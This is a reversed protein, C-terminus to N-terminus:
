QETQSVHLCGRRMYASKSVASILLCRKAVPSCTAMSGRRKLRPQAHSRGHGLTFTKVHIPLHSLRLPSLNAASSRASIQRALVRIFMAYQLESDEMQEYGLLTMTCYRCMRGGFLRLGKSRWVDSFRLLVLRRGTLHGM